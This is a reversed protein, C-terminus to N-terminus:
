RTRALRHAHGGGHCRAPSQDEISFGGAIVIHAIGHSRKAIRANLEVHPDGPFRAVGFAVHGLRDGVADVGDDGTAAVAGQAFDRGGQRMAIFGGLCQGREAQQRQAGGVVEGARGADRVRRMGGQAQEQLLRRRGDVQELQVGVARGM